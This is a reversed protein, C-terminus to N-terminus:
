TSRADLFSFLTGVSFFKNKLFEAEEFEDLYSETRLFITFKAYGACNEGELRIRIFSFRDRGIM